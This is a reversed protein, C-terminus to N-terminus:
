IIGEFIDKLPDRDWISHAPKKVPPALRLTPEGDVPSPASLDADSEEATHERISWSSQEAERRKPTKTKMTTGRGKRSRPAPVELPTDEVIQLTPAAFVMPENLYEEDRDRSVSDAVGVPAEVELEHSVEPAGFSHFEPSPLDNQPVYDPLYDEMFTSHSAQTVHGITELSVPELNREPAPLSTFDVRMFGRNESVPPNWRTFPRTGFAPRASAQATATTPLRELVGSQEGAVALNEPHGEVLVSGSSKKRSSAVRRIKQFRMDPLHVNALSNKM